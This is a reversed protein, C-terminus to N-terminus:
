VVSFLVSDGSCGFGNLRDVVFAFLRFCGFVSFFCGLVNLFLQVVQFLRFWGPLASPM